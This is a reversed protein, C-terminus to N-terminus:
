ARAIVPMAAAGTMEEITAEEVIAEAQEAIAQAYRPHKMLRERLSQKVVGYEAAIQKMLAGASIRDLVAEDDLNALAGRMTNSKVGTTAHKCSNRPHQPTAHTTEPPHNTGIKAPNIGTLRAM